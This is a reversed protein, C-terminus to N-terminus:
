TLITKVMDCNLFRLSMVNLQSLWSDLTPLHCPQSSFGPRKTGPVGRKFPMWFFPPWDCPTFCFSDTPQTKTLVQQIVSHETIHCGLFSSTITKRQPAQLNTPSILSSYRSVILHRAHSNLKMSPTNFPFFLTGLHVM